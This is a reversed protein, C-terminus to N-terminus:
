FVKRPRPCLFQPHISRSCSDASSDPLFPHLSPLSLTPFIQIFLTLLLLLPPSTPCSVQTHRRLVFLRMTLSRRSREERGGVERRGKELDTKGRRELFLVKRHTHKYTQSHTLTLSLTSSTGAQGIVTRPEQPVSDLCCLNSFTVRGIHPCQLPLTM